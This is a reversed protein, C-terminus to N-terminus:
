GIGGAKSLALPLVEGSGNSRLLYAAVTMTWGSDVIDDVLLAPGPLPQEHIGLTRFVNLAQYTSNEMGKQEPHDRTRELVHRCPLGLAEALRRAFEPVLEPRRQSPICTVWEPLPSAGWNRVLSVCADVLEDAFWGDRYKGERVLTGWGADGWLCLARGSSARRSDPITVKPMWEFNAYPWQKRPEIPINTRRLFAIAEHTLDPDM